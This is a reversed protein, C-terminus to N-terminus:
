SAATITGDVMLMGRRVNTNTTTIDLNAKVGRGIVHDIFLGDVRRIFMMNTKNNMNYAKFHDIVLDKVTDISLALGRIDGQGSDQSEINQLHIRSNFVNYEGPYIGVIINKCGKTKVDKVHINDCGKATGSRTAGDPLYTSTNSMIIDNYCDSFENWDTVYVNSWGWMRIAGYGCGIFKNGKIYIDKCPKDQIAYGHNGIAVGWYGFDPNTDSKDFLCNIININESANGGYSGFVNWGVRIMNSIQVADSINRSKDSTPDHFGLCKVNEITVNKCGNLDFVHAYRVNRVTVGEVYINVGDAFGFASGNYGDAVTENCTIQGNGTISFDHEAGYETYSKGPEGNIFCSAGAKFVIHANPSFHVHCHSKVKLYNTSHYEGNPIVVIGGGQESLDKMCQNFIRSFDRRNSESLNYPPLALNVGITERIHRTVQEVGQRAQADIGTGNERLDTVVDEVEKIKGTIATFESKSEVAEDTLIGKSSTYSFSGTVAVVEAGQFCMLEANYKGPLLYAQNDLVIEVLGARANVVRCEQFLVNKDPKQISMRVTIGTLDVLSMGQIITIQLRVTKLDLTNVEFSPTRIKNEIDVTLQFDKQM